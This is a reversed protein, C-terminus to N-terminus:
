RVATFLVLWSCMVPRGGGRFLTSRKGTSAWVHLLNVRDGRGEETLGLAGGSGGVGPVHCSWSVDGPLSIM